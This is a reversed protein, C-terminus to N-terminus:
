RVAGCTSRSIRAAHGGRGRHRGEHAHGRKFRLNGIYTTKQGDRTPTDVMQVVGRAGAFDGTGSALPHWCAGWVLSAPDPSDYLAWYEFTFSLTGKPDGACSGDRRRDLCGDFEETGTAHYLPSTAIEQFSTYTWSGILSGEARYIGKEVDVPVMTGELEHTGAVAPAALALAAACSALLARRWMRTSGIV